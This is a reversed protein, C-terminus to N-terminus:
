QKFANRLTQNVQCRSTGCVIEDIDNGVRYFTQHRPAFAITPYDRWNQIEYEDRKCGAPITDDEKYEAEPCDASWTYPPAQVPVKIRPQSADVFIWILAPLGFVLMGRWGITM